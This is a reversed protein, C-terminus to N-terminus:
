QPSYIGESTLYTILQYFNKYKDNEDYHRNIAAQKYLKTLYLRSAMYTWDPNAEDINELANKILTDFILQEDEFDDIQRKSKEIYALTNIPLGTSVEKVLQEINMTKEKVLAMT